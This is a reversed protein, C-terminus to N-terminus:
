ASKPETEETTRQSAKKADAAKLENIQDDIIAMEAEVRLLKEELMAEYEQDSLPTVPSWKSALFGGGKKEPNLERRRHYSNMAAQGGAGFLSFM